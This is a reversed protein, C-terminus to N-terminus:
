CHLQCPTCSIGEEQRVINKDAGTVAGYDTGQSERWTEVRMAGHACM